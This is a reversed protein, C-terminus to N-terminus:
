DRKKSGGTMAELLGAKVNLWLFNFVSKTKDREVKSSSERFDDSNSESNKKIFLNAVSSLFKNIKQGKNDLVLVEFNDYKLKLDIRSQNPNGQMTFYTQLVEGELQVKLNPKTFLNMREASMKGLDAKFTFTDSSDNVDFDWDVKLPTTEMFNSQIRIQTKDASAYTNSVNKLKANLQTFQIEGAPQDANVKESYTISGNELVMDNITLEIPLDRLMRSYLLKIEPDDAVLKDRYVNLQPQYLSLKSTKFYFVSDHKYGFKQNDLVMSDVSIDFHDREKTIRRSLQAKSYKTLLRVSKLVSKQKNIHLNEVMLNEYDGSKLFVDQMKVEYNSFTFPLKKEMTKANTMVDDLTLMVDNSKLLLSDNAADFITVDGKTISFNEIHFYQNISKANKKKYDSKDITDNKYYVITPTNLEISQIYIKDNFLVDWYSVDDILLTELNATFNKNNTIEGKQIMQPKVLTIRGNITSIKLESYTLQLNAPLENQLLNEVKNKVITDAIVFLVIGLVLVSAVVVGIKKFPKSM